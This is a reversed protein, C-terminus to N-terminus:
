VSHDVSGFWSSEMRFRRPLWKSDHFQVIEALAFPFNMKARRKISFFASDKPMINKSSLFPQLLQIFIKSPILCATICYGVSYEQDNWKRKKEGKKIKICLSLRKNESCVFKATFLIACEERGTWNNEEWVRLWQRRAIGDGHIYFNSKKEISLFLLVPQSRVIGFEFSGGGKVYTHAYQHVTLLLWISVLPCETGNPCTM